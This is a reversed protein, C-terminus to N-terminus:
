GSYRSGPLLNCRALLEPQQLRWAGRAFWRAACRRHRLDQQWRRTLRVAPQGGPRHGDTDVPAPSQPHAMAIAAAVLVDIM